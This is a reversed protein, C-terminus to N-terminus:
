PQRELKNARKDHAVRNFINNQGAESLKSELKLPISIQYASARAPQRQHIRFSAAKSLCFRGDDNQM